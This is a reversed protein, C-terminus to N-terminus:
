LHLRVMCPDHTPLLTQVEIMGAAGSIVLAEDAQGPPPNVRYEM